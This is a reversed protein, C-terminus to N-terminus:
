FKILGENNNTRTLNEENWLGAVKHKPKSDQILQALDAKGLERACSEFWSYEWEGLCNNDFKEKYINFAQEILNKGNENQLKKIHRGKEFLAVANNSNIEIAKDLMKLTKVKISVPIVM